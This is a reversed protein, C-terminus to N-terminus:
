FQVQIGMSVSPKRSFFRTGLGHAEPDIGEKNKAIYFLNNVKANFTINEFYNNKAKINPLAYTFILERLRIYDGSVVNKTSNEVILVSANNQSGVFPIDTNEEDGPNKWARAADANIINPGGGTQHFGNYSDKLLVHGSNAIFMFSVGFNKYNVSNTLAATYIPDVTGTNVLDKLSVNSPNFTNNIILIEGDGNKITPFGQNNLGQFDFMWLSNAAAGERNLLGASIFSTPNTTSFVKTVKNKNYRFTLFSSWNFNGKQVNITNLSVEIGKNNINADNSILSSFGLTPDARTPALLDDTQKNYFNIGLSVRNNLMEFDLGINFSATREWRLDRIAPTEIELSPVSGSFFPISNRAINFPGFENSINGNVGYSMRFSLKNITSINFFDEESVRWKAGISWFPKYRLSPDTGFLNSQDIRASGSLIYKNKFGYTFNGYLSVFRDKIETFNDTFVLGPTARFPHFVDVIRRGLTEKDINRFLLTNRDYGFRDITSTTTFVQRIESGIISNMEHDGFKKNYDLQGRLTYSNSKGDIRVLRGGLPIQLENPDGSFTLPTTHNILQRMTFSGVSSFNENKLNSSEYQFGFHGTLDQSIKTNLRAQIRVSINKNESTYEKLEQLPFYTEDLLGNNILNQILVPDKGGIGALGTGFSGTDNHGLRVPSFNGNQDIIDEYSSTKKFVVSEDIPISKSDDFVVNAIIDINTNKSFTYNNFIDFIFKDANSGAWQGKNETYNLSARFTNIEGGGSISINHQNESQSQLYYKEFQKTNNKTKLNDLITNAQATTIIGDNVQAFTEHVLSTAFPSSRGLNDINWQYTHNSPVNAIRSEIDILDASSVRNLRYSLSPRESFSFTNRYEIQIPGKKGKKSTIVIVGNAARAGYISTAAADNLVTVSEIDYPNITSISSELPFGDVVILPGTRGGLTTIGRINFKTKGEQTPDSFLGLGAIQGELSQIINSNTKKTFVDSKVVKAAGTSKNVSLKQYGTLIVEDLTNNNGEMIVNITSSLDVIKEITIEGIYSFVLIDGISANIIYTGDLNTQTGNATGKIIINVDPMPQGNKDTVIGRVEKQFSPEERPIGMRIFITNNKNLTINFNGTSLSKQLLKNALITGKKIHVVPLNKFLNPKYVFSYDTQRDIMDFIEEVTLTKDTDVIIKTNQSFANEASFSFVTTCLLFIFSKMIFILASKIKSLLASRLKIKM